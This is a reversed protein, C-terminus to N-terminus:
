RDHASEEAIAARCLEITNRCNRISTQVIMGIDLRIFAAMVEAAEKAGSCSAAFNPDFRLDFSDKSRGDLKVGYEELWKLAATNRQIDEIAISIRTINM